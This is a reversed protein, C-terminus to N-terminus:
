DISYPPSLNQKLFREIFIADKDLMDLTCVPQSNCWLVVTGGGYDLRNFNIQAIGSTLTALNSDDQDIFVKYGNVNITKNAVFIQNSCYQKAAESSSYLQELSDRITGISFGGDVMAIIASVMTENRELQSLLSTSNIVTM